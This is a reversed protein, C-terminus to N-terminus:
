RRWSAVDRRLLLWTTVACAAALVVLLPNALAMVLMLAGASASSVALTIRAWHKGLFAVVAIAAAAVCWPVAIATLAYVAVSIQDQTVGLDELPGQQREFETWLDQGGIAVALTVLLLGGAVLLTSVWVISCAWILAPPRREGARPAATSGGPGLYPNAVAHVEDSGRGPMVTGPALPAPRSPTTADAPVTPAPERPPAAFPDPRDPGQARDRESGQGRRDSPRSPVSWPRGAFWDRTPTMWLLVIGAAVLPAFFGATAFGGILILPALLSLALRASTSRRLAYFGLIAAATAAGGAVMCLIRVVTSLDDASLGSADLPPEAVVDQFEQQVELTPLAAIRSWATMLVVVSGGIILWGALTAQGPRQPRDQSM